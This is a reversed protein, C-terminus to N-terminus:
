GELTVIVTADSGSSRIISFQQLNENGSLILEGGAALLHGDNATSTGGDYRYRVPNDEVTIRARAADDVAQQREAANAGFDTFEALGLATSSVAQSAYNIGTPTNINSPM